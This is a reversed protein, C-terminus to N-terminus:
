AVLFQQITQLTPSLSIIDQYHSTRLTDVLACWDPYNRKEAGKLFLKPAKWAQPKLPKWQLAVKVKQVTFVYIGLEAETYNM